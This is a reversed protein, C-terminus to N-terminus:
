WNSTAQNNNANNMTEQFAFVFDVRHPAIAPRQARLIYKQIKGTASKPLETVFTFSHPAKLTRPTRARL